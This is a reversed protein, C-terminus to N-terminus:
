RARKLTVLRPTERSAATKEAVWDRHDRALERVGAPLAVSVPALVRGGERAVRGAEGVDPLAAPDFAMGRASGDAFPLRGATYIVASAHAIDADRPPNVLVLPTEVLASLASAHAAWGGALLAFGRADGLALFAAIRTAIDMDPTAAPAGLPVDDMRTIGHEIPFEAGCAACGLVGDTICRNVSRKAAAILPTEEHARPCRLHELLEVFM